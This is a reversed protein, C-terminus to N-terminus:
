MLVDKADPNFRGGNRMALDEPLAGISREDAVRKVGTL